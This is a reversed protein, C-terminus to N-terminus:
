RHQLNFDEDFIKDMKRIKNNKHSKFRFESKCRELVNDFMKKLKEIKIIM